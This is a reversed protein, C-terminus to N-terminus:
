KPQVGEPTSFTSGGSREYHGVHVGRMAYKEGRRRFHVSEGFEQDDGLGAAGERIQLGVMM